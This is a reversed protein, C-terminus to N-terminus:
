EQTEKTVLRRIRGKVSSLKVGALEAEMAKQAQELPRKLATQINRGVPCNSNPNEHIKFLDKSSNEEVANYVDLLSIESFAKKLSIGGTGRSVELLGAQKLQQLLKRVVVPNTGISAALFDSTLKTESFFDICAFLHIAMTFKSSIQM